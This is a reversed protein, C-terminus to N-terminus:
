AHSPSSLVSHDNPQPVEAVSTIGTHSGNTAFMSAMYNGL